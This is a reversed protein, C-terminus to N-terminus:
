GKKKLKDTLSTALDGVTYFIRVNDSRKKIGSVRGKIFKNNLRMSIVDGLNFVYDSWFEIKMGGSNEGFEREAEETAIKKNESKRMSFTNADSESATIVAWKGKVRPTPPEDTMEGDETLYFHYTKKNIQANHPNVSQPDAEDIGNGLIVTVKATTDAGGYGQSELISHGDNFVVNRKDSEVKKILIKFAGNSITPMIRINYADRLMCFYEYVNFIVLEKESEESEEAAEEAERVLSPKIFVPDTTNMNPDFEIDLYDIRYEEDTQGAGWVQNLLADLFGKTTAITEAAMSGAYLVDQDFIKLPEMIGVTVSEDSPFVDSILYLEGNYVLWQGVEDQDADGPKLTAQSAEEEFSDLFIEFNTEDIQRYTKFTKRSKLFLM